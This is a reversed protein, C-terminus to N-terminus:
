NTPLGLGPIDIADRPTTRAGNADAAQAFISLAIASYLATRAFLNM